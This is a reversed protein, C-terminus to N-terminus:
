ERPLLPDRYKSGSIQEELKGGSREEITACERIGESSRAQPRLRTLIQGRLYHVSANNPDIRPKELERKHKHAVGLNNIFCRCNRIARRPKSWSLLRM